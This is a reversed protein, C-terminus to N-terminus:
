LLRQANSARQWMMLKSGLVFQKDPPVQLNGGRAADVGIATVKEDLRM